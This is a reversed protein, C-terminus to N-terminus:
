PLDVALAPCRSGASHHPCSAVSRKQVQRPGAIPYHFIWSTELLNMRFVQGLSLHARREYTLPDVKRMVNGRPLAPIDYNTDDLSFAHGLEHTLNMVIDSDLATLVYPEGADCTIGSLSGAVHRVLYVNLNGTVPGAGPLIDACSDLGIDPYTMTSAIYPELGVRNAAMIRAADAVALTAMGLVTIPSWDDNVYFDPLWLTVPVRHRSFPGFAGSFDVSVPAPTWPSVALRMTQDFSFVTVEGASGLPPNLSVAGVFAIREFNFSASGTPSRDVFAVAPVGVVGSRRIQDAGMVPRHLRVTAEATVGTGARAVIKVEVDVATPGADLSGSELTVLHGVREIVTVLEPNMSEWYPRHGMLESIVNGSSDALKAVLKFQQREAVV